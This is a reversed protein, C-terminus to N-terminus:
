GCDATGHGCGTGRGACCAWGPATWSSVPRLDLVLDPRPGATLTDLRAALAPVALVDIEGQLAVATAGGVAHHARYPTSRTHDTAM